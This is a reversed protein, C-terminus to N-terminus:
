VEEEEEEDSLCSFEEENVQQLFDDMCSGSLFQTNVYVYAILIQIQTFLLMQQATNRLKLRKKVNAKSYHRKPCKLCKISHNLARQLRWEVEKHCYTCYRYKNTGKSHKNALLDSIKM